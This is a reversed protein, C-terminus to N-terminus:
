RSPRRLSEGIAAIVPIALQRSGDATFHVNKPIQIETLRTAAFANLDNVRVEMEKMVRLAAANYVAPDGPNRLIGTVGEPVPTTTAFILAAGTKKMEKVLERLNAEYKEVPVWRTGDSNLKLDHLGWNFHIADWRGKGLWERIHALGNTTSGGNVPIRHVNAVGELAARVRLTYGISISDGIILVRPLGPKDTIVAM